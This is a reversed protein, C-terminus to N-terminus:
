FGPTDTFVHTTELQVGKNETVVNFFDHIATKMYILAFASCLSAGFVYATDRVVVKLPKMEKELYMEVMKILVFVITTSIAFLFLDM